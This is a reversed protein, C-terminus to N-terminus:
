FPIQEETDFINHFTVKRSKTISHVKDMDTIRVVIDRYKFM